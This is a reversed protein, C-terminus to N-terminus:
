KPSFFNELCSPNKSIMSIRAREKKVFVASSETLQSAPKASTPNQGLSRGSWRASDYRRFVRCHRSPDQRCPRPSHHQSTIHPLGPEDSVFDTLLQWTQPACFWSPKSTHWLHPSARLDGVTDIEELG